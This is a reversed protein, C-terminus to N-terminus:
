GRSDGWETLLEPTAPWESGRYVIVAFLYSGDVLDGPENNQLDGSDLRPDRLVKVSANVLATAGEIDTVRLEVLFSGARTFTHNAYPGDTCERLSGDGWSWEYRLGRVGTDDTTGSADFDHQRGALGVQVTEMSPRPAGNPLLLADPIRVVTACGTADEQGLVGGEYAFWATVRMRRGSGNDPGEERRDSSRRIDAFDVWTGYWVWGTDWFAFLNFEGAAVPSTRDHMVLGTSDEVALRLTGGRKTSWGADDLLVLDVFVCALEEDVSVDEVVLSAPPPWWWREATLTQDAFTFSARVSIDTGAHDMMRPTVHDLAEFPVRLIHCTDVVDGRRTTTFDDAGVHMSTWHVKLCDEDALEVELTGDWETARGQADWLHLTIAFGDAEEDTEVSDISMSTPREWAIGWDDPEGPDLMMALGILAVLAVMTGLLAARAKLLPM